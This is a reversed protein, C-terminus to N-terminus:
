FLSRHKRTRFLRWLLFVSLVISALLGINAIAEASLGLFTGDPVSSIIFGTAVILAFTILALAIRNAIQHFTNRTVPDPQIQMNMRMKNDALNEMIKNARRPFTALMKSSEALLSANSRYNFRKGLISKLIPVEYAEVVQGYSIEPCLWRAAGETASFGKAWLALGNPVKCYNKLGINTADLVLRGYNYRQNGQNTNVYNLCLSRLEDKLKVVDTYITPSMLEMYVEAADEAQNLQIHMIVRLLIQAMISDMRGTMGWDIIMAKKTHKDIMINSGHADAHYHGDLMTQVYLHVLDIMVKVREEFTYFDVPFDKILWGDIYEMILVNKTAEYVEPIGVHETREHHKRMENMKRTEEVMNLEDMSSSYYDEVLSNLDLAASLETPLRKQLKSTMKKIVTIDTQFLKEVTPRVVKVAVTRGDKLGAKYVQALSASGLPKADIWEFTGTGEPLEVELIYQIKYFEIAPVQDLLKELELTIPEPLLDQRTVLVQGLKIFTPGLEEFATRMREGIQRLYENESSDWKRKGFLKWLTADKLLFLLGHKAFVSIIKRRRKAKTIAGKEKEIEGRVALLAAKREDYREQPPTKERVVSM